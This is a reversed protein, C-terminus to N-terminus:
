PDVNDISIWNRNQDYLILHAKEKKRSFIIGNQNYESALINAYEFPIGLIFISMEPPWLGDDGVGEGEVYTYGSNMVKCKLDNNRRENEEHPLPKSEPNYATIFAWTPSPMDPILTDIEEHARGVRIIIDGQQAHVIYSTHLYAQITDKEIM